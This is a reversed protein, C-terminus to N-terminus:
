LYLQTLKAFITEIVKANKLISPDLKKEIWSVLKFLSNRVEHSKEMWIKSENGVPEV